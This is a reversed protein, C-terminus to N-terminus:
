NFSIGLWASIVNIQATPASVSGPASPMCHAAADRGTLCHAPRRVVVVGCSVVAIRRGNKCQYWHQPDPDADLRQRDMVSVSVSLFM